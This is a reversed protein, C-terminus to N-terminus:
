APAEEGPIEGTPKANIAAFAEDLLTQEEFSLFGDPNVVPVVIQDLATLGRYWRREEHCFAHSLAQLRTISTMREIGDVLLATRTHQLVFVLSAPAPPLGFHLAGNVVYFPRDGRRLAHRAKRLSSEPLEQTIGAISEVSRVEQVSASCIALLVGSVRFLIIQESKPGASRSPAAGHM